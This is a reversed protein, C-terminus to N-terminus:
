SSTSSSAIAEDGARSFSSSSAKSNLGADGGGSVCLVGVGPGVVSYTKGMFVMTRFGSPPYSLMASWCVIVWGFGDVDVM